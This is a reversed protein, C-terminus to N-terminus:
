SQHHHAFNLLSEKDGDEGDRYGCGVHMCRLKLLHANTCVQIFPGLCICVNRLSVLSDTSLNAPGFTDKILLNSQVSFCRQIFVVQRQLDGKGPGKPYDKYVPEELHLIPM